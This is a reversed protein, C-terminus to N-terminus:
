QQPVSPVTMRRHLDFNARSFRYFNVYPNHQNCHFAAVPPMESASNDQQETGDLRAM